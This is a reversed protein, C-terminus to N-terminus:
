HYPGLIMSSSLVVIQKAHFTQMLIFLTVLWVERHNEPNAFLLQIGTVLLICCISVQNTIRNKDLFFKISLLNKHQAARHFQARTTCSFQRVHCVRQQM